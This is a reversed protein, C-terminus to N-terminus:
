DVFKAAFSEIFSTGNKPVIAKAACRNNSPKLITISTKSSLDPTTSTSFTKRINFEIM